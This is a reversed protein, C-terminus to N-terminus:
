HKFVGWSSASNVTITQVFNGGPVGDYDGDLLNGSLDKIFSANIVVNITCPYSPCTSNYPVSNKLSMLSIFWPKGFKIEHFMPGKNLSLFPEVEVMLTTDCRDGELIHNFLYYGAQIEKFDFQFGVFCIFPDELFEDRTKWTYACKPCIKFPNM